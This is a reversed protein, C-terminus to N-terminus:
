GKEKFYIRRLEPTETGDGNQLLLPPQVTLGTGGDKRCAMLLLSPASAANKQVFQLVKPELRHRRLTEMLEALRETRYVLCFQGGSRLLYAAAACLQEMTCALEARHIGRSGAATKGGGAPFYPPNSVALDFRGASPLQRRDRLDCPLTILRDTLGNAAATRDALACAAPSLELGTVTLSGRWFCCVWCGRAPAWIASGGAGGCRRFAAWCSPTQPPSSHATTLASRGAATGCPTGDSWVVDEQWLSGRNYYLCGGDAVFFHGALPGTM